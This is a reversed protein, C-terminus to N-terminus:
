HENEREAGGERAESKELSGLGIGVAVVEEHERRVLVGGPGGVTVEADNGSSRVSSSAAVPDAQGANLEKPLNPARLQFWKIM